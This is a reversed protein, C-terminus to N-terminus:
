LRRASRVRIEFAHVLDETEGDGFARQMAAMVEQWSHDAPELLYHRARAAIDALDAHSGDDAARAGEHAL